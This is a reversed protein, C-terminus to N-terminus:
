NRNGADEEGILHGIYEHLDEAQGAADAYMRGILAHNRRETALYGLTAPNDKVSEFDVKWLVGKGSPHPVAHVDGTSYPSNSSNDGLLAKLRQPMGDFFSYLRVLRTRLEPDQLISLDGSAILTDYGARQITAPPYRVALMIAWKFREVEDPAIKGRKVIGIAFMLDSALETQSDSLERLEDVDTKLEAYIQELHARERVRDRRAENWADAQLGLFIGVVVVVLELVVSVWNQERFDIILRRLIM